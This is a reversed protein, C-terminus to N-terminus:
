LGAPRCRLAVAKDMAAHTNCDILYCWICYQYASYVLFVM